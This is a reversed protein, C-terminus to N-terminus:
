MRHCWWSVYRQFSRDKYTPPHIIRVVMGVTRLFRQVVPSTINETGRDGRGFRILLKLRATRDTDVRTTAAPTGAVRGM